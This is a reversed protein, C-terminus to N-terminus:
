TGCKHSSDAKKPREGASGNSPISIRCFGYVARNHRFVDGSTGEDGRGRTELEM